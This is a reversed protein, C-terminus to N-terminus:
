GRMIDNKGELQLWKFSESSNIHKWSSNKELFLLEVYCGGLQQCWQPVESPLLSELSLKKIQIVSFKGARIFNKFWVFVSDLRVRAPISNKSDFMLWVHVQCFFTESQTPSSLLHRPQTRGFNPRILCWCSSSLLRFYWAHDQLRVRAQFRVLCALRVLLM